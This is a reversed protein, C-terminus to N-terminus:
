TTLGVAGAGLVAAGKLATRRSVQRPGRGAPEQAESTGMLDTTDTM